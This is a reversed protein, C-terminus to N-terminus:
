CMSSLCCFCLKCHLCSACIFSLILAAVNLALWPDVNYQELLDSASAQLEAFSSQLYLPLDLLVAGLSM